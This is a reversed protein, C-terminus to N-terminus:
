HHINLLTGAQTTLGNYSISVAVDGDPLNAPVTFIFQYIGPSVMGAYRPVVQTTGLRVLAPSPLTGIQEKSRYVFPASVAGFGSGLVTIQEGPIAPTTAGPFFTSPGVLTGDSHEALAYPGGDLLYLEPSELPQPAIVGVTSVANNTVQYAIDIPSANTTGSVPVPPTLVDVQGPSIYSVIAPTGNVLVSVGDLTTPMLGSDTFDSPQWTRADGQPALNSGRITIWTNPAITTFGSAATAIMSIFMSPPPPSTPPVVRVIENGNAGSSQTYWINGDPGVTIGAPGSSSQILAPFNTAAGTPTMLGFSASFQTFWVYDDTGALLNVDSPALFETITGPPTIRGIKGGLQSCFWLAGGPGNTIARAGIDSPLIFETIVGATTIKAVKTNETFWLNNDPGLVIGGAEINPTPFQDVAGATTMRGIFGEGAFWLNGDPGTTIASPGSFQGLPFYTVAGTPTIKGIQSGNFDTFWINGDPGATIGALSPNPGPLPFITIAGSTTIKGITSVVGNATFWLNGDPGATISRVSFGKPVPFGTSTPV